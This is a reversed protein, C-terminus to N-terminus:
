NPHNSILEGSPKRRDFGLHKRWQGLVEKTYVPWGRAKRYENPSTGVHPNQALWSEKEAVYQMYIMEPRKPGLPKLPPPPPSPSPMQFPPLSPGDPITPPIIFIREIREPSILATISAQLTAQPNGILNNSGNIPTTPLSAQFGGSQSLTSRIPSGITPTGTASSIRIPSSSILIPTQSKNFAQPNEIPNEPINEPTTLLGVRFGGLPSLTSGIPSGITPIRAPSSILIPTHPINSARSAQSVQLVENERLLQSSEAISARLKVPCNRSTRTHGRQHCASCMPPTRTFQVTEFSSLTRRTRAQPQNGISTRVRRPERLPVRPDNRDWFWHGNFDQLRLGGLAKREDVVHACPLGMSRTFTGTCPKLPHKMSECHAIVRRIAYWTVVGFVPRFVTRDIDLPSTRHKCAALTEVDMLQDRISAEIKQWATFLSGKTKKGGLYRKIYKHSSECRTFVILM